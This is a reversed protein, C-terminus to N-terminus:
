TCKGNLHGSSLELGVDELVSVERAEMGVSVLGEPGWSAPGLEGLPCAHGLRYPHYLLEYSSM